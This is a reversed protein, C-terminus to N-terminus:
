LAYSTLPLYVYFFGDKSEIRIKRNLLLEFRDSLNVLGIGNKDAKDLKEHVPNSVVLENRDNMFVSVDMQNESDIMNHKVINEILPLLSLVPIWNSKKEEPININFRFKDAYRIEQLYRFSELFRLEENLTVLGKKDSQLIYRFVGSLENIYKLTQNKKDSRVLATLGNLSNFFFHPNIQNALAECRSQLNETKLKEIEMERKRQELYMAFVHGTLTCLLCAVVFQFLLLGTLCDAHKSIAVSILLYILYAVLTILFTKLLRKPFFLANHKHINTRLLIWTFLCFFSYRYIFFLIHETKESQNTFRSLEWPLEIIKPYIIFASLILSAIILTKNSINKDFFQAM